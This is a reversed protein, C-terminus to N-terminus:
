IDFCQILFPNRPSFLQPTIIEGNEILSYKKLTGEPIHYMRSTEEMTKGGKIGNLAIKLDPHLRFANIQPMASIYWFMFM